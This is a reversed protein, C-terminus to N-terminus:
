VDDNVDAENGFDMTKQHKTVKIKNEKAAELCENWPLMLQILVMGIFLYINLHIGGWKLNIGTENMITFILPPLFTLIQTCYLFFGALESEQGQPVIMSYVFNELPYYWGIWFGWFVGFVYAITGKSPDTLILFAVFNLAIFSGLQLKLATLVGIKTGIWNAFWCGPLSSVLVILFMISLQMAKFDLVENMYTVSITTFSNIGAETFIVAFFYIGVSRPYHKQLGKATKFVQSFGTTLLNEGEPLESKKEKKTFFYWTFYFYIGTVVTDLAQSIQATLVDSTKLVITVAAIIVLFVVEHAFMTIMYLSSYWQYTKEAVTAQIEPFYAYSVLTIIQYIFGNIAQLIAMPFWTSEVTGIQIAQITVLLISAVMGLTHRHNTYDTIAGIIPMFFASLIGTIVAINSILSSPKFGYIKGCEEGVEDCGLEMEALTILATSLFINSMIVPGTACRQYLFGTADNNALRFKNSLCCNKQANSSVPTPPAEEEEKM